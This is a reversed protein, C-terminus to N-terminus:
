HPGEGAESYHMRWDKTQVYRSTSEETLSMERVKRLPYKPAQQVIKRGTFHERDIEISSETEM